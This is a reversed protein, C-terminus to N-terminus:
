AAPEAEAETTEADLEEELLSETEEDLLWAACVEAVWRGGADPAEGAEGEDTANPALVLPLTAITAGVDVEPGSSEAEVFAAEATYVMKGAEANGAGGAAAEPAAAAV